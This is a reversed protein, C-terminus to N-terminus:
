SDIQDIFSIQNVPIKDSQKEDESLIELEKIFNDIGQFNKYVSAYRIYAVSDLIKLQNIVVQGILDTEIENNGFEHLNKKIDLTAKNIDENKVPRKAFAIKISKELKESSFPERSNNRKIVSLPLSLTKEYTTYRSNCDLCERRRRLGDSSDRSEMVRSSNKGCFPCQLIVGPFGKNINLSM